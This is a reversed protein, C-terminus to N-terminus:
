CATKKTTRRPIRSPLGNGISLGLARILTQSLFRRHQRERNASSPSCGLDQNRGRQSRHEGALSLFTVCGGDDRNGLPGLSVCCRCPRFSLLPLFSQEPQHHVVFDFGALCRRGWAGVSSVISNVASAM